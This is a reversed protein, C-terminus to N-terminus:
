EKGEVINEENKINKRTEEEGRGEDIKESKDNM